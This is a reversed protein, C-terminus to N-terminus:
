LLKWSYENKMRLQLAILKLSLIQNRFLFIDWSSWDSKQYFSKGLKFNERKM